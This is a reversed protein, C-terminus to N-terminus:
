NVAGQRQDVGRVELRYVLPRQALHQGRLCAVNKTGRVPSNELYLLRCRGSPIAVTIRFRETM